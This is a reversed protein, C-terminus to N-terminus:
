RIVVIGILDDNYYQKIDENLTRLMLDDIKTGRFNGKIVIQPKYKMYVMYDGFDIDDVSVIKREKLYRIARENEKDEDCGFDATMNIISKNPVSVDCDNQSATFYVDPVEIEAESNYKKISDIIAYLDNGKNRDQIFDKFLYYWYRMYLHKSIKYKGFNWPPIKIIARGQAYKGKNEQPLIEYKKYNMYSIKEYGSDGIAEAIGYQSIEDKIHYESTIVNFYENMDGTKYMAYFISVVGLILSLVLLLLVKVSKKM